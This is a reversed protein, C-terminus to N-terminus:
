TDSSRRFRRVTSVGFPLLLLAGAILTTPEPVANWPGALSQVDPNERESFWTFNYGAWSANVGDQLWQNALTLVASSGTSYFTPTLTDGTSTSDTGRFTVNYVGSGEYLAEWIAICLASRSDADVVNGIKSNYLWAAKQGAMNDAWNPDPPTGNPTATSVPSFALPEYTYIKGSSMTNGIDTCFGTFSYGPAPLPPSGGPQVVAWWSGAWSSSALPDGGGTAYAYSSMGTGNQATVKIEVTAWAAGTAMVSCGLVVALKWCYRM